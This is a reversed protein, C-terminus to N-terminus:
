VSVFLFLGYKFNQVRNFHVTNANNNKSVCKVKDHSTRQPVKLDDVFPDIHREKVKNQLSIKLAADKVPNRTKSQTEGHELFNLLVIPM